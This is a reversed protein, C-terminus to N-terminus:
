QQGKGLLRYKGGSQERGRDDSEGNRVTRYLFWVFVTKFILRHADRKREEWLRGKRAYQSREPTKRARNQYLKPIGELAPLKWPQTEQAIKIKDSREVCADKERGSDREEKVKQVIKTGIVLWQGDENKKRAM